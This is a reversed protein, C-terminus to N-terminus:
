IHINTSFLTSPTSTLNVDFKFSPEVRSSANHIRFSIQWGNNLIVELTSLSDSKFSVDIIRDPLNLKPIKSVPSSYPSPRNLSGNLNFAQITLMGKARMVKYFDQRGLLYQVLRAPVLKSHTASLRGLEDKFALLLPKYCDEHINGLETWKTNPNNARAQTLPAFIPVIAKFYENSVPLGLWVKGFDISPSLRPHKVAKHNNKASIGIVWGVAPLKILIDRVDGKQGASDKALALEVFSGNKAYFLIPEVNEFFDAAKRSAKDLAAKQDVNLENYYSSAKQFSGDQLVEVKLQRSILLNQLGILLAYEFAKGSKVQSGM